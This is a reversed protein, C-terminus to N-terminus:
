GICQDTSEDFVKFALGNSFSVAFYSAQSQGSNPTASLQTEFFGSSQEFIEESMNDEVEMPEMDYDSDEESYYGNSPAYHHYYDAM